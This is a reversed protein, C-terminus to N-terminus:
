LFVRVDAGVREPCEWLVLHGTEEYIKLLSGPIRAALTEQHHRPVLHDHAGWLILTRASIHGTETPPVVQYLGRLSAKWVAAPLALGDQVRDEIYASPVTHLLRYWSLSERVWSEPVPDTLAEVEDAFAPRSHLRLPAGVLVLSSVRDPYMVALQQAVYGGSSSGVLHARGIGLADLVAVADRAVEDLSYGGLPKDAGGHGRLDPAVLLLDPLSAILREFSRWSEGWAHLLLLPAGGDDHTEDLRGQVFCPVSIGTSLALRRVQSKM